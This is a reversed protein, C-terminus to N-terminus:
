TPDQLDSTGVFRQVYRESGNPTAATSYSRSEILKRYDSHNPGDTKSVSSM